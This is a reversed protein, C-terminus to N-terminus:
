QKQKFLQDLIEILQRARESPTGLAHLRARGRIILDQYLQKNEMLERISRIVSHENDPIFYLAADACVERAFEKDSTLIPREMQMAEPYTATFTELLSPVLVAHCQNYLEPLDSPSVVGANHLKPHGKVSRLARDFDADPLTVTIRCDLGCHDILPLLRTIIEFNKHPYYAGILLLNFSGSPYSIAANSMSTHYSNGVVSVEDDAIGLANGMAAKATSTEVWIADSERKLQRFLAWRRLRYRLTNLVDSCVQTKVYDSGDFLYYGNAFGVLHPARSRLLSPGFVTFVVDPEATREVHRFLRRVKTLSAIGQTPNCDLQYFQFNDPFLQQNILRGLQPSLLVFFHHQPYDKWEDLLSIAVQIAGGKKINTANVLVNM